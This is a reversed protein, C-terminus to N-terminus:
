VNERAQKGGQSDSYRIDRKNKDIYTISQVILKKWAAKESCALPDELYQIIPKDQLLKILYDIMQDNDFPTKPNQLEYKKTEPSFLTDAAWSLGITVVDKAGASNIAEEVIKLNDMITDVPCLFTGDPSVKLAAEGGKGSVISKRVSQMVAQFLYPDKVASGMIMYKFVKCKSGIAKGGQLCNVM